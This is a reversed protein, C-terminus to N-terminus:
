KAEQTEMLDAYGYGEAAIHPMHIRMHHGCFYLRGMRTWVVWMAHVFPGCRDCTPSPM